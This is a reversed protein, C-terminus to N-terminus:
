PVSPSEPGPSRLPGNGNYRSTRPAYARTAPQWWGHRGEDEAVTSYRGAELDITLGGSRDLMRRDAKLWRPRCSRPLYRPAIVVDARECAAALAREAVRDKGRGILLEWPRGGRRLTVACFDPNCRAGPWDAIQRTEGEMGSLQVLNDRAFDSRSDRLVLLETGEGTIGVHRGDGSVLVDPPRACVLMLTGISAAVLGLLRAKGRWLAMWFGGLLCLAFAGEGVAPLLTVAGPWSATWHALALLLDLSKGALWWFPAGLGVTDFLLALAILPMSAFTTLPIAVINAIAGYVGARHFHFLGIPLLALEIVIGTLLLSGAHRLGKAWWPEERAQFLARAPAAGHLAVIAIVAAFSMQFSPGVLAEPWILLIAFAGVAIMRMSLAERGLVLAALVLLAGICSRITPVESGTLLTYGIGALAGSGAAVLPLRVRLALWPILAILRLTIVYAAAIVASVHLGSISLLHTLGADRMAEEDAEAIAGRDGSAFAAAITGASGSLNARVHQSLNRQLQRLFSGSDGSGVVTVPGLVSGTAALGSFWATRAFDYGGPLMPPAPPVLRARLRVTADDSLGAVDGDLDLNLRVRIARGSGPERTALLLRVRQEAPQEERDLVKGEIVAVMPRAIPPTGVLASKGWVLLAGAAGACLMVVLSQRLYPFRGDRHLLVLGLLAGALCASVWALWQWVTPLVFWAAIGSAFAVVAWPGRDFGAGALFSEVKALGSSLDVRNRWPRHQLAAGVPEAEGMPVTPPVRSAM